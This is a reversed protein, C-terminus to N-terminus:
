AVGNQKSVPALPITNLENELELLNIPVVGPTECVLGGALNSILAINKLSFGCALCLAAVSIVTDGAGSVDAIRRVFAPLFHHTEQKQIFVGRESLTIFSIQNSLKQEMQAVWELLEQNNKPNETYGLAERLEKLNPKFLAVGKYNWFNKQKPDVVVPIGLEKAHLLILEINQETLVGKNYDEIIIVDVNKLASRYGSIFRENDPGSLDSLDEYDLRLMQHKQAMVRIKTTTKRRESQLLTATNVGQDKLIQTIIEGEEDSGIVSCLIPDAGLAKINVAVNAAGGPRNERKEIAVVPVPAEPSIREVTGLIYSDLMVDGVILVKKNKFQQSLSPTM